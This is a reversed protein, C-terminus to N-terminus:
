DKKLSGGSHLEKIVEVVEQRSLVGKRELVTVLALMEYSHSIALEEITVLEEKGLQEAM